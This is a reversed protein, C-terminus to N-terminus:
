GEEVQMIHILQKWVTPFGFGALPERLREAPVLAIHRLLVDLSEHTWGHLERLGDRAFM